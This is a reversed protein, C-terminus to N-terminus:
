KFIDSAKCPLLMKRSAQWLYGSIKNELSELCHSLNGSIKQNVKIATVSM